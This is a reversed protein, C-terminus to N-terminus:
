QPVEPVRRALRGIGSCSISCKPASRSVWASFGHEWEKTKQRVYIDCFEKGFTREALSNDEFADLAEILTRPLRQPRAENDGGHGNRAVKGKAREVDYLNDNWPPGPDIRHHM